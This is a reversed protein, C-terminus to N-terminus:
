YVRSQDALAVNGGAKEENYLALFRERMDMVEALSRNTVSRGAISYSSIDMGAIKAAIVQDCQTIWVAYDPPTYTGSM